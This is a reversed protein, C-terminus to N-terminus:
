DYDFDVVRRPSIILLALEIAGIILAPRLALL